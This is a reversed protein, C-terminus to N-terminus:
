GVLSLGGLLVVCGQSCAGSPQSFRGVQESPGALGPSHRKLDEIRTLTRKLLLGLPNTEFSYAVCELRKSLQQNREITPRSSIRWERYRVQGADM